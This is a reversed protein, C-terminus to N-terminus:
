KTSRNSCGKNASNAMTGVAQATRRSRSERGSSSLDLSGEAWKNYGEISMLIRGDPAHRWLYNEPWDGRQIKSRVADETYGTIESFKSITVWRVDM